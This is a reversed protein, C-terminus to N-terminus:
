DLVTGGGICEERDYFVTVQGPAIGPEPRELQVKAKGNELAVEALFIEPSHRVKVHLVRRRPPGCIWHINGVAYERRAKDLLTDTHSVYVINRKIDKGQVFWPGHSLGLGQRQGITYFWYGKHEGLVQNTERQIISGESEGLHHRVFERYKIKGLFCIGQSDKRDCNPLNLCAAYERVQRKNLHGIPFVTRELQDQCLHSLFYTQDKILDGSKKLRVGDECHEVQAYHGSAVADYSNGIADLFAGFKIHKNCFIDPSPTRGKRLENLTYRVVRDWYPKQFSRVELPVGLLTCVERSFGLDEEWPCNGLYSLEDELWVKLYFATLQHGQDKLLSLAVSSDVGGSLLVALKM